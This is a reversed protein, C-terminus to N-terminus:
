LLPVTEDDGADAGLEVIVSRGRELDRSSQMRRGREILTLALSYRAGLREAADISRQWWQAAKRRRGDIWAATGLLRTSHPLGNLFTRSATCAQRCARLADRRVGADRGASRELESLELLASGMRPYITTYTITGHQRLARHCDALMRRAEDHCGCQILFFALEAQAPGLNVFDSTQLSREVAARLAPECEALRGLRRLAKGKSTMGWRFAAQFGTERACDLMEEAIALAEEFRGQESLVECKLISADSWNSLDGARNSFDRGRDYRAIAEDWRGIQFEHVGSLNWAVGMASPNGLEESLRIARRHYFGALGHFGFCDLGFGFASSAKAVAEAFAIREAFNLVMFAVAALRRQDLMLMTWAACEFAGLLTEHDPNIAASPTKLILPALLRHAIQTGLERAIRLRIGAKSSPITAGFASLARNLHALAQAHSGRRLYIEGLRREIAARQGKEWTEGFVRAYADVAEQYHILAEDDAAMRSSQEAAELLFHLARPWNEARAYHFALLSAVERLRDKFLFEICEAVREHIFKRRQILVSEYVAEQALAHRFLYALEPASKLEDIIEVAKLKSLRDDLDEGHETVARLVRYFFSRGIVSAIGLVEKLRDDLRDVRAMIVGDVTDPIKIVQDRAKWGSEDRLLVKADILTRVIEEAFFPNGEAKYLIMDRVHATEPRDGIMATILRQSEQVSLPALALASIHLGAVKEGTARLQTLVGGDPRSTLCFLIPSERALPLLHEILAASSGDIWHLDDIVVVVPAKRAMGAFLHSM